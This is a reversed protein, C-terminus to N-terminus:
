NNKQKLCRISDCKQNIQICKSKSRINFYWHLIVTVGIALLITESEM